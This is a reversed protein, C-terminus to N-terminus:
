QDELIRLLILIPAIEFTCLYLFFQFIHEGIFRVGILLGRLTRILLLVLILAVGGYLAIIGIERPSFAVVLNIPILVLGLFINFTMITFSYLSSDKSIDFVQGIFTMSMHRIFYIVMVAGFILLWNSFGDFGSYHKAILYIFCALNIFFVVYLMIYHGTLGGNEERKSLKLVNENTISRVVKSIANRQVNVVIALLLLTFLVLWFIFTNNTYSVNVVSKRKSSNRKTVTQGAQNKLESRRYPVHSVEFPNDSIYDMDNADIDVEDDKLDAINEQKANKNDITDLTSITPKAITQKEDERFVEFANGNSPQSTSSPNQSATNNNSESRIIEFPNSGQQARNEVAIIMLTTLLIYQLIRKV